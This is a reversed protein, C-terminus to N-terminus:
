TRTPSRHSASKIAQLLETMNPTTPPAAYAIITTTSLIALVILVVKIQKNMKIM